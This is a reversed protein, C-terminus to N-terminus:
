SITFDVEIKMYGIGVQVTNQGATAVVVNNESLYKAISGTGPEVDLSDGAWIKGTISLNNETAVDFMRELTGKHQLTFDVLTQGHRVTQKM